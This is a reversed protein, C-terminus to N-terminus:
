VRAPGDLRLVRAGPGYALLVQDGPTVRARCVGAGYRWDVLISWYSTTRPDSADGGVRDLFFDRFDPNWTGAWSRGSAALASAPSAGANCDHAGTGDAGDVAAATTRVPGEYLTESRGEIRLVLVTPSIAACAVALCARGRM